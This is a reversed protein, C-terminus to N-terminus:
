DIVRARAETMEGSAAQGGGGGGGGGGWVM